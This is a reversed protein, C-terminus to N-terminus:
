SIVNATSKTQLSLRFADRGPFVDGTRGPQAIRAEKAVCGQFNTVELLNVQLLNPALMIGTKYTSGHSARINKLFRCLLSLLLVPYNHCDLM